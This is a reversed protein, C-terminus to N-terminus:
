GMQPPKHGDVVTKSSMDALNALTIATSLCSLVAVLEQYFYPFLQKLGL